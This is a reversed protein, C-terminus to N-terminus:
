EAVAGKYQEYRQLIMDVYQVPETGRAFGYKVVPDNYVSRKSKRILWYAVDDWSAPDNGYKDALRRADLVHGLGVNYAALIFKIRESERPVADKLQDDLKWLYRSAGEIAQQPDRANVRLDRATRPMIQMVGAAGAWSRANPDFRSEQFAQAALLRWDWGPIAAYERFFDDWPSLKGTETALYSSGSRKMYGRRDKFYKRYLLTVLGSKRQQAIWGNLADHLRPSNRRVAWVIQQPPGLAPKILLNQYEGAKLAAINEAAVTFGIAGESLKQILRDTSEDVEVVDIDQDLENDLEVLRQRYPSSESIHVRQGALEAPRTILRARVQVQGSTAAAERALSKQVTPTEHAGSAASTRQVLVPSTEYLGNTVLVESENGPAVLQAAVIDGDGANLRDLLTSSDRVVVPVLHLGAARAWRSILEYEYGMTEGRYIFYGTSNFTFLVRVSKQQKIEDLDRAIPAV